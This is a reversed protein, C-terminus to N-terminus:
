PNTVPWSAILRSYIDSDVAYDFDLAAAKRMYFTQTGNAGINGDFAIVAEGPKRWPANGDKSIEIYESINIVYAWKDHALAMTGEVQIIGGGFLCAIYEKDEPNSGDANIVRIKGGEEPFLNCDHVTVGDDGVLNAAALTTLVPYFTLEPPANSALSLNKFRAANATGNEANIWRDAIPIYPWLTNDLPAYDVEYWMLLRNDMTTFISQDILDGTAFTGANQLYEYSDGASTNCLMYHKSGAASNHAIKFAMYDGAKIELPPDIIWYTNPSNIIGGPSAAPIVRADRVYWYGDGLKKFSAIINIFIGAGAKQQNGAFSALYGDAGATRETDVIWYATSAPLNMNEVAGGAATGFNASNPLNNPGQWEVYTDEDSDAIIEQLVTEESPDLEIRLGRIGNDVDFYVYPGADSLAGMDNWSAMDLSTKITWDTAISPNCYISVRGTHQYSDVTNTFDYTLGVVLGVSTYATTDTKMNHLGNMEADTFDDEVWAPHDAWTLLARNVETYNAM